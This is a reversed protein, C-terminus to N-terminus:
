DAVGLLLRIEDAVPAGLREYILQAAYWETRAQNRRHLADLANGISHRAVAETIESGVQLAISLAETALTLALDPRGSACYVAALEARAESSTDLLDLRDTLEISECLNAIAEETRGANRCAIGVNYLARARGRDHRLDAYISLSREHYHLERSRRDALGYLMGLALCTTAELHKLDRETCIALARNAVEIGEEIQGLRELVHALNCLAMAEGAQDAQSRFLEVAASFESLAQEGRGFTLQAAGIDHHAFAQAIRDDARRAVQLSVQGTAVLLPWYGGTNLHNLSVLALQTILADPVDPHEAAQRMTSVINAREEILWSLARDSSVQNAAEDV